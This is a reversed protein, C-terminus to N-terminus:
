RAERAMSRMRVVEAAPKEEDKSYKKMASLSVTATTATTTAATAAM